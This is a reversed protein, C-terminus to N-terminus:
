SDRYSGCINIVEDTTMDRFFLSEVTSTTPARRLLFEVVEGRIDFGVLSLGFSEPLGLVGELLCEVGLVCVNSASQRGLQVPNVLLQLSSTVM